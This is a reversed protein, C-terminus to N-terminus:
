ATAKSSERRHKWWEIAIPLLSVVIIALIVKSFNSKV